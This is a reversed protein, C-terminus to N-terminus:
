NKDWELQFPPLVYCEGNTGSNTCQIRVRLRAQAAIPLIGAPLQGIYSQFKDIATWTMGTSLGSTWGLTDVDDAATWVAFDPDFTNSGATSKTVVDFRLRPKMFAPTVRPLAFSTHIYGTGTFGSKLRIGQEFKGTGSSEFVGGGFSTHELYVPGSDLVPSSGLYRWVAATATADVCVYAHDNTVDIWLSGVSYGDGSDDNVTPATTADLKDIRLTVDADPVTLTRVTATTINSVDVTLKKTNDSPDQVHPRTLNVKSTAAITLEGAASRRIFQGTDGFYLNLGADMMVPDKFEFYQSARVWFLKGTNIDTDFWLELDATEEQGLLHVTGPINIGFGGGGTWYSFGAIRKILKGTTGDFICIEDDTVSAPGVVDGGGIDSLVQAFTRAVIDGSGLRAIMSNVPIPLDEVKFQSAGSGAPQDQRVLISYDVPVGWTGGDMVTSLAGLLNTLLERAEADVAM